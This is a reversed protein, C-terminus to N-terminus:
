EKRKKYKSLNQKLYFTDSLIHLLIKFHVLKKKKSKSYDKITTNLGKM